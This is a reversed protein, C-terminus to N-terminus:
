LPRQVQRGDISLVRVRGDSCSCSCDAVGRSAILTDLCVGGSEYFKLIDETAKEDSADVYMEFIM